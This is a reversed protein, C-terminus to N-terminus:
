QTLYGTSHLLELWYRTEGMEKQAVSLKHIFDHGSEANNAERVMAGPSTGSRLLQRSLVTEKKTEVLYQYLRVVSVALHFSKEKLPSYM